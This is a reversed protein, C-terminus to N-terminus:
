NGKLEKPPVYTQPIVRLSFLANGDGDTCDMRWESYPELSGDIEKLIEGASAVAQKWAARTDPLEIPDTARVQQRYATKFQYKPM